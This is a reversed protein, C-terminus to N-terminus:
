EPPFSRGVALKGLREGEAALRQLDLAIEVIRHSQNLLDAPFEVDIQEVRDIREPDLPLLRDSEFHELLEVPLHRVPEHNRAAVEAVVGGERLPHLLQIIEADDVLNRPDRDNLGRPRCREVFHPFVMGGVLRDFVRFGDGGRDLDAIRDRPLLRQATEFPAVAHDLRDGFLLDHVRLGITSAAPM